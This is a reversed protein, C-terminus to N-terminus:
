EDNLLWLWFKAQAHDQVDALALQRKAENRNLSLGRGEAYCLERDFHAAALHQSAAQKFYYAALSTDQTLATGEIVFIGYRCEADAQGQDAALKYYKAAEIL